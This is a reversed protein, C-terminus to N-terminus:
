GRERPIRRMRPAPPLRAGRMRLSRRTVPHETRGVSHLVRPTSCTRPIRRLIVGDADTRSATKLAQPGGAAHTPPVCAYAHVPHAPSAPQPARTARDKFSRAQHLTSPACSPRAARPSRRTGLIVLCCGFGLGPRQECHPYLALPTHRPRTTRWCYAAPRHASRPARPATPLSLLRQEAVM